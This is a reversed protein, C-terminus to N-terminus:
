HEFGDDVGHTKKEIGNGVNAWYKDGQSLNRVIAPKGQDFVFWTAEEELSELGGKHDGIMIVIDRLNRDEFFDETQVVHHFRATRSLELRNNESNFNSEREAHRRM